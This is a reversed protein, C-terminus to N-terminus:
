EQASPRRLRAVLLELGRRGVVRVASGAPIAGDEASARWLAGAVFVMGSPALDERAEGVSGVLAEAGVWAPRRRAAIVKGLVFSFFATSALAAAAIVWPSLGLGVPGVDFLFASGLVLAVLGGATLIGHSPAKLDAIFLAIGFLLLLVGAINVPLSAFGVLALVAAIVGVTGPLIAGPTSVEAILGFVAVLLLLYAVNPDILAHLLQQLWSMPLEEVRAGALHLTFTTGQPRELQRGDLASLLSPLDKAILDAVRLDLAQQADVNASERVAKECWDANRGHSSALNRIRAVADNLVKQGLDGGINSGGAAVPHASGLNTGPAMAVIDAAQAVFLGASDARAGAPYVYAIVPVRSGLLTTVIEDMSAELGGPTNMLLVLADARESTARSVAQAVYTATVSNIEGELQVQVVLPQAAAAFAPLLGFLGGVAAAACLGSWRGPM